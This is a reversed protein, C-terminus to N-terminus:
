INESHWKRIVEYGRIRRELQAEKLVFNIKLKRTDFIRTEEPIDTKKNHFKVDCEREEGEKGEVGDQKAETQQSNM